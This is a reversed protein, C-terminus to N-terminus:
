EKEEEKEREKLDVDGTEWRKDRLGDSFVRAAVTDGGLRESLRPRNKRRAPSM